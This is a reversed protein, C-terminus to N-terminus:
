IFYCILLCWIIELRRSNLVLIRFLIECYDVYKILETNSILFIIIFIFETNQWLERTWRECKRTGFCKSLWQAIVYFCHLVTLVTQLTSTWHIFTYWVLSAVTFHCMCNMVIKRRPTTTYEIKNKGIKRKNIEMLIAYCSSRVSALKHSQHPFRTLFTWIWFPIHHWRM